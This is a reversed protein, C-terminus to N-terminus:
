KAEVGLINCVEVRFYKRDMKMNLEDEVPLDCARDLFLTDGITLGLEEAVKPHIHKLIAKDARHCDNMVPLILGGTSKRSKIRVGEVYEWDWDEVPECLCWNETVELEGDPTIYFFISNDEIQMYTGKAEGIDEGKFLHNTNGYSTAERYCLKHFYAMKGKHEGSVVLGSVPDLANFSDKKIQTALYLSGVQKTQYATGSGYTDAIMETATDINLQILTKGKLEKM